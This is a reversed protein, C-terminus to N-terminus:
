EKRMTTNDIIRNGMLRQRRDDSQKKLEKGEISLLVIYVMLWAFVLVCPVAFFVALALMKSKRITLATLVIWLVLGAIMAILIVTKTM